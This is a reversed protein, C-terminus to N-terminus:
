KPVEETNRKFRIVVFMEKAMYNGYMRSMTSYFIKHNKYGSRTALIELDETHMYSNSDVIFPRPTIRKYFKIRFITELMADFLYEDKHFINLFDRSKLIKSYNDPNYLQIFQDTQGSLIKERDYEEGFNISVAM